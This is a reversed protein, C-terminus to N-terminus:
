PFARKLAEVFDLALVVCDVACEKDSMGLRNSATHSVRGNSKVALDLDRVATGLRAYLTTYSETDTHAVQKSQKSERAASERDRQQAALM